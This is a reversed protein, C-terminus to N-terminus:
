RMVDNVVKMLVREDDSFAVITGMRSIGVKVDEYQCLLGMNGVRLLIYEEPLSRSVENIDIPKESAYFVRGRAKLVPGVIVYEPSPRSCATCAPDRKLPVEEVSFRGVDVKILRGASALESGVLHKIVETAGMSAVLSATFNLTEGEKLFVNILEEIRNCEFCPTNPPEVFTLIGTFGATNVLICPTRTKICYRNILRRILPSDSTNVILDAKRLISDINNENLIVSYPRIKTLVSYRRLRRYAAEAKFLGVDRVDYLSQRSLDSVEVLGEDIIILEGVSSLVLLPAIYAGPGSLGVIAVRAKSLEELGKSGIEEALLFPKFYERAFPHKLDIEM